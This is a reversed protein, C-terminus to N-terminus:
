KFTISEKVNIGNRDLSEIIAEKIDNNIKEENEGQIIIPVQSDNIERIIEQDNLFYSIREAIDNEKCDSSINLILNDGFLVIRNKGCLDYIIEDGNLSSNVYKHKSECDYKENFQLIKCKLLTALKESIM